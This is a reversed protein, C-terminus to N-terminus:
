RRPQLPTKSGRVLHIADEDDVEKLTALRMSQDLRDSNKQATEAALALDYAKSYTLDAEQLLCQQTNTNRIGCVICDRLMEDPVAGYNCHKTLKRLAAVVSSVSEGEKQCRTNFEFRSVIISPKPNFHFSASPLTGLAADGGTAMRWARRMQARASLDLLDIESSRLSGLSCLQLAKM